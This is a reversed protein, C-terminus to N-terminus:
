NQFQKVALRDPRRRRGDSARLPALVNRFPHPQRFLLPFTLQRLKRWNFTFALITAPVPLLAAVTKGRALKADRAIKAQSANQFTLKLVDRPIQQRPKDSM